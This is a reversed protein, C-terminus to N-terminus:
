IFSFTLPFCGVDRDGDAGVGRERKEGGACDERMGLPPARTPRPICGCMDSLHVPASPATAAQRRAALQRFSTKNEERSRTNM